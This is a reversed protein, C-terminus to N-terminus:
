ITLNVDVTIPKSVIEMLGWLLHFLSGKLFLCDNLKDLFVSGKIYDSLENSYESSCFVLGEGAGALDLGLRSV